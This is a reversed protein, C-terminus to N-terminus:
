GRALHYTMARRVRSAATSVSAMILTNVSAAPMVTARMSGGRSAASLTGVTAGFGTVLAPWTSAGPLPM